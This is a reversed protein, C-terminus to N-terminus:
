KTLTMARVLTHGGSELRYFYVGSGRRSCDFVVSYDGPVKMENVLVAVERGLLDYVALRVWRSGLGSSTFGLRNDITLPSNDISTAGLGTGAGPVQFGITTAPNFPNPFNQLLGFSTYGSKEVATAARSIASAMRRGSVFPTSVGLLSGLTPAIDIQAWRSSDVIGAPTDPGVVLCMIHRCGDCSDGHSIYGDAIGDLHRGHDNTIILTTAGKLVPDAEVQDHLIGLLSDVTHLSGTYGDWSGLHAAHDASPFNVLTVQPHVVFLISKLNEWVEADELQTLPLLVSAGYASGGEPHDSYAVVGLKAKGPVVWYQDMPMGFQRRVYEFITPTHPPESGDNAIYQWAGSLISSHGANTETLGDNYFRTYIAGAPRLRKWIVPIYTHASDGLSESYRVGDLVVIVVHRTRAGFAVSSFVPLLAAYIVASVCLFALTMHSLESMGM